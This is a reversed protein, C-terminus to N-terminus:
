ECVRARAPPVGLKVHLMAEPLRGAPRFRVADDPTILPVGVVGPVLVSVKLTTSEPVGTACFAVECAIEIVILAGGSTIEVVENGFPATLV